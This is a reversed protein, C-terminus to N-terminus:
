GGIRWAAHRGGESFKEDGVTRGKGMNAWVDLGGRCNASCFTASGISELRVFPKISAVLTATGSDSHNTWRTLFRLWAVLWNTDDMLM